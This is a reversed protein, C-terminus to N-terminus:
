RFRELRQGVGRHQEQGVVASRDGPTPRDLFRWDVGGLEMAQSRRREDRDLVPAEVAM